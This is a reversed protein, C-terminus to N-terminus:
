VPNDEEDFLSVTLDSNVLLRFVRYRLRRSEFIAIAAYLDRRSEVMQLQPEDGDGYWTMLLYIM